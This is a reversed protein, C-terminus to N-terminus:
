VYAYVPSFQTGVRGKKGYEVRTHRDILQNMRELEMCFPIWKLCIRGLLNYCPHFLISFKSKHLVIESSMNSCRHEDRIRLPCLEEEHEMLFKLTPLLETPMTISLDIDPNDCQSLEMLFRSNEIFWFHRICYEMDIHMINRYIGLSSQRMEMEINEIEPNNRLISDEISLFRLHIIDPPEGEIFRKDHIIFSQHPITNGLDSINRILEEM